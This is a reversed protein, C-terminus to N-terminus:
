LFLIPKADRARNTEGMAASIRHPNDNSLYYLTINWFCSIRVAVWSLLRAQLQHRVPMEHVQFGCSPSFQGIPPKLQSVDLPSDSTRCGRWRGQRCLVHCRAPQGVHVPLPPDGGHCHAANHAAASAHLSFVRYCLRYRATGWSKWLLIGLNEGAKLITMAAPLVPMTM